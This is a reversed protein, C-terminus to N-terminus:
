QTPLTVEPPQRDTIELRPQALAEAGLLETILASRVVEPCDPIKKKLSYPASAFRKM